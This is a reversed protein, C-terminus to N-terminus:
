VDRLVSNLRSMRYCESLHLITRFNFSKEKRVSGLRDIIYQEPHKEFEGNMKVEMLVRIQVSISRKIYASHGWTCWLKSFCHLVLNNLNNWATSGRPFRTVGPIRITRHKTAWVWLLLFHYSEMLFHHFYLHLKKGWGFKCIGQIRFM